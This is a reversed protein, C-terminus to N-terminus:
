PNDFNVLTSNPSILNGAKDTVGTIAFQNAGDAANSTLTLTVITGLSNVSVSGTVQAGNLKYHTIDLVSGSGSTAMKESFEFTFIKCDGAGATCDPPNSSGNEVNTTTTLTPRTTDLVTMPISAAANLNAQPSLDEVEAAPVVLTYTGGPIASAAAVHIKKDGATGDTITLIIGTSVSAVITSGSKIQIEGATSIAVNESWVIDFEMQTADTQDVRVLTPKSTDRTVTVTFIASPPSQTEAAAGTEGTVTFTLVCSAQDVADCGSVAWISGGGYDLNAQKTNTGDRATALAPGFVYTGDPTQVSYTGTPAANITGSFLVSGDMETSAASQATITASQAAATFGVSQPNPDQANGAADLENTATLTYATGSTLSQTTMTCKNPTAGAAVGTATIGNVAYTGMCQVPENWTAIVTTSGSNAASSIAPGTTDNVTFPVTATAMINGALDTVNSVILTDGGPSPMTATGLTVTTGDSSLTATNVALASGLVYNGTTEATTKGVQENFVVIITAANPASVSSVTPKTNDRVYTVSNGSARFSSDTCTATASLTHAGETLTTTAAVSFNGSADSTGSGIQAAGDWLSVTCANGAGTGNVVPNGSTSPSTPTTSSILVDGASVTVQLFFGYDELWAAGDVVPTGHFLVQGVAQTAPVKVNWVWSGLQSTAVLDNAQAAFRNASLWNQGANWGADAYATTDRPYAADKSSGAGFNAQQGATGKIWPGDGTNQYVASMQVTQGPSATAYASQAVWAAHYGAAANAPIASALMSFALAAATVSTTLLKTVRM